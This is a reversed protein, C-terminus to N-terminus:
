AVGGRRTHTVDGVIAQGGPYVHVHEVVVKQRGGRRTNSLVEIQSTFARQLRSLSLSASDQQPITACKGTYLRASFTLALGHGVAIQLALMAEIENQPKLGDIVALAGNVATADVKGDEDQFVTLLWNLQAELFASSTTGFADKLRARFGADDSHPCSLVAHRPKPQEVKIAVRPHRRRGRDKAAGIEHLEEADPDEAVPEKPQEILAAPPAAEPASAPSPLASQLIM